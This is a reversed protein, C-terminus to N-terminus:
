LIIKYLIQQNQIKDLNSNITWITDGKGAGLYKFTIDKLSEDITKITLNYKKQLTLSKNILQHINNKSHDKIFCEALVANKQALVFNSKDNKDFNSIIKSTDSYFGTKLITGFDGHIELPKLEPVIDNNKFKWIGIKNLYNDDNLSANRMQVAIDYCSGINQILKITTKINRWIEKESLEFINKFFLTIAAIIASSSGFGLSKEFYKEIKLDFQTKSLLEAYPILIATFFREDKDKILNEFTNKSLTNIITYFSLIKSIDLRIVNSGFYDSYISIFNSNKLVQFHFECNFAWSHVVIGSFAYLVGYEGFLISKSPIKIIM